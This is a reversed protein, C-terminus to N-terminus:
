SSIHIEGNNLFCTKNFAALDVPNPLRVDILEPFPKQSSDFSRDIQSIFLLIIQKEEALSKLEQIQVNLEPKGRKQDLLQLYDIVALTGNPATTLREAIYCSSIDDSDDFDFRGDFIMSDANISRFLKLVDSVTYEFTFFVAHRGAKVAESILELSFTTKGEGPRAALLVLDGPVLRQHLLHATDRDDSQSMLLSWSNFGENMAVRDLAKALPINENKSLTKALRKLRYIPASLKM